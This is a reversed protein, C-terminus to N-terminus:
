FASKTLSLRFFLTILCLFVLMRQQDFFGAVLSRKSSSCPFPCRSSPESMPFRNWSARGALRMCGNDWFTCEGEQRTTVQEHFLKGAVEEPMGAGTDVMEIHLCDKGFTAGFADANMRGVTLRVQKVKRGRVAILANDLLTLGMYTLEDTTLAVACVQEEFSAEFMIRYAMARFMPELKRLVDIADETRPTAESVRAPMVARVREIYASSLRQIGQIALEIRENREDMLVECELSIAQVANKWDHLVRGGVDKNPNWMGAERRLGHSLAVIGHVDDRTQPHKQLAHEARLKIERFVGELYMAAVDLKEFENEKPAAVTDM